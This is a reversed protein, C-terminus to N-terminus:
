KWHVIKSWDLMEKKDAKARAREETNMSELDPNVTNLFRAFGPMGGVDDMVMEGDRAILVPRYTERCRINARDLHEQAIDLDTCNASATIKLQWRDGYDYAYLLETTFPRPDVQNLPSDEHSRITEEIQD